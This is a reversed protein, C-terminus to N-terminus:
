VERKSSSRAIKYRLFFEFALVFLLVLGQFVSAAASPISYATQIFNGGQILAAFLVCVIGIAVPNLRALWATIIATYGYGASLTENLTREVGTAQIMGTLGALAGGLCVTVVITKPVNIGAYRATDVSEGIVMIRYGGKSHTIFLYTAAILVIAIIWGINVGLIHPLLVKQDFMAIKPFGFAEPDKWANYQLYQIMKLAIYNLM